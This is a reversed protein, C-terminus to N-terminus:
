QLLWYLAAHDTRVLFPTGYLYHHFCRVFTVIALLERHTVCYNHQVRNLTRSAYAIVREEGDQVQSLVGGLGVDSADMDLMYPCGSRPYALVPVKTLLMKLHDFAAQQPEQWAFGVDKESLMTLPKAVLSFDPIFKRYYACLGLCSKVNNLNQPVLWNVVKDVKSPDVEM